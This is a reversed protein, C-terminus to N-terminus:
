KISRIGELIIVIHEGSVGFDSPDLIHLSSLDSVDPIEPGKKLYGGSMVNYIMHIEESSISIIYTQSLATNGLTEAELTTTAKSLM